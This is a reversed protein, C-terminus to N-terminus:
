VLWTGVSLLGLAWLKEVGPGPQPSWTITQDWGKGLGFVSRQGAVALLCRPFASFCATLIFMRILASSPFCFVSPLWSYYSGFVFLFSSVPALSRFIFHFSQLLTSPSPYKPTQCLIHPKHPETKSHHPEARPCLWTRRESGERGPRPSSPPHLSPSGLATQTATIVAPQEEVRGCRGQPCFHKSCISDQSCIDWGFGEEAGLLNDMGGVQKHPPEHDRHPLLLMQELVPPLLHTEQVGWISSTRRPLLGQNDWSSGWYPEAFGTLGSGNLMNSWCNLHQEM